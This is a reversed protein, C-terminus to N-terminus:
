LKCKERKTNHYSSFTKKLSLKLLALINLRSESKEKPSSYQSVYKKTIIKPNYLNISNSTYYPYNRNFTSWRIDFNENYDDPFSDLDFSFNSIFQKSTDHSYQNLCNKKLKESILKEANGPRYRPIYKELKFYRSNRQQKNHSISSNHKRITRKPNSYTIKKLTLDFICNQLPKIFKQISTTKSERSISYNFKHPYKSGVVTLNRKNNTKSSEM